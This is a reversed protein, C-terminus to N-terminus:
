RRTRAEALLAGMLLRLTEIARRLGVCAGRSATFNSLTSALQDAVNKAANAFLRFDTAEEFQIKPAPELGGVGAKCVRQRAAHSARDFDAHAVQVAFKATQLLHARHVDNQRLRAEWDALRRLTYTPSATQLKILDGLERVAEMESMESQSSIWRATLDRTRRSSWNSPSRPVPLSKDDSSTAAAGQEPSPTTPSRNTRSRRGGISSRSLSRQIPSRAHTLKSVKAIPVTTAYRRRREDDPQEM